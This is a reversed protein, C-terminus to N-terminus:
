NETPVRSKRDTTVVSLNGISAVQEALSEATDLYRINSVLKIGSKTKGTDWVLLLEHYSRRGRVSNILLRPSQSEKLQAEQQTSGWAELTFQIGHETSVIEIKPDALAVATAGAGIFAAVLSIVAAAVLLLSLNTGPRNRTHRSIFYMGVVFVGLGIGFVVAFWIPLGTSRIRVSSGAVSVNPSGLGSVVAEGGLDAIAEFSAASVIEPPHYAFAGAVICVTVLLGFVIWM